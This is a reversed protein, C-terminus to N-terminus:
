INFRVEDALRLSYVSLLELSCSVEIVTKYPVHNYRLQVQLKQKEHDSTLSTYYENMLPKNDNPIKTFAVKELLFFCEYLLKLNQNDLSEELVAHMARELHFRQTIMADKLGEHYRTLHLLSLCLRLKEKLISASDLLVQIYKPGAKNFLMLIAGGINDLLKMHSIDVMKTVDKCSLAIVFGCEILPISWCKLPLIEIQELCDQTLRWPQRVEKKIANLVTDFHYKTIIKDGVIDSKEDDLLFGCLIEKLLNNVALINFLKNLSIFTRDMTKKAKRVSKQSSKVFLSHSSGMYLMLTLSGIENTRGRRHNKCAYEFFETTSLFVKHAAQLSFTSVSDECAFVTLQLLISSFTSIMENSAEDLVNNEESLFNYHSMIKSAFSTSISEQTDYKLLDSKHCSVHKFLSDVLKSHFLVTEELKKASLIHSSAYKMVYKLGEYLVTNSSIGSALSVIATSANDAHIVATTIIDVLSPKVKSIRTTRHNTLCKFCLFLSYFM